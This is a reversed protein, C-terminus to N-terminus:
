KTMHCNTWSPRCNSSSLDTSQVWVEGAIGSADKSIRLQEMIGGCRPCRDSEISEFPAHDVWQMTQYGFAQATANRREKTEM